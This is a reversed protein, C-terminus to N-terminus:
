PSPEATPGVAPASVVNQYFPNDPRLDLYTFATQDKLLVAFIALKRALDKSQGFIITQGAASRVYVGLGYDWGIQAPTFGLEVPLRLALAQALQIADLDLQDNPKLQTHSNDAIVLVDAKALEQAAALVKGTGDVFYQVGGAQWRVEPKREVIRIIAM